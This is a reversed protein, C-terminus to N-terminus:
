IYHLDHPLFFSNRKPLINNLLLFKNPKMLIFILKFTIYKSYFRKLISNESSSFHKIFLKDTPQAAASTWYQFTAPSSLGPEASFRHRTVGPPPSGLSLAVSLLGGIKIPLPSLTPYSGVACETIFTALYVGSPALGFLFSACSKLKCSTESRTMRTPQM